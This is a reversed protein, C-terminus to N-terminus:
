RVRIRRGPRLNSSRLDNLTRIRQVSAGYKRAIDWLSEGARVTHYLATDEKEGTRSKESLRAETVPRGGITLRNTVVEIGQVRSAVREARRYQDPTNVDGRLILHGNIVTPRFPFVHLSSTGILAREVRTELSADELKESVTQNESRQELKTLAEPDPIPAQSLTAQTSAATSDASADDAGAQNDPGCGPALLVVGLLLVPM